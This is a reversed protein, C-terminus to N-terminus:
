LNENNQGKQKVIQKELENRIECYWNFIKKDDNLSIKFYKQMLIYLDTDLQWFDNESLYKRKKNM